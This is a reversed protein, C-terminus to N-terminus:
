SGFFCSFEANGLSELADTPLGRRLRPEEGVVGVQDDAQQRLGRVRADAVPAEDHGQLAHMGALGAHEVRVDVERAAQDALRQPHVQRLKPLHLATALLLAQQQRLSPPAVFFVLFFLAFVFVCGFCSGLFPPGPPTTIRPPPRHTVTTNTTHLDPATKPRTKARAM